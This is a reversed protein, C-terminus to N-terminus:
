PVTLIFEPINLFGDGHIKVFDGTATIEVLYHFVREVILLNGNPLETIGGPSSLKPVNSFSMEVTSLDPSYVVVTDTTGSWSVAISGSALVQCATANTTGGIGSTRTAVQTGANNYIRVVDTNTSCLVFNGNELASVDTGGSQLAKPWGGATVRIADSTFREINNSEVILLDGSALQTLGRLNGALNVSTIFLRETCDAASVAMVRDSGDVTIAVEETEALWTLGYVTESSNQVNYIIRKFNGSSDLALVADSGSNSVLIDGSGFCAEQSPEEAVPVADEFNDSKCASLAIIVIFYLGKTINSTYFDRM